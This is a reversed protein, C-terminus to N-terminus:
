HGYHGVNYALVILSCTLMPMLLGPVVIQSKGEVRNSVWTAVSTALVAFFAVISAHELADLATLLMVIQANM